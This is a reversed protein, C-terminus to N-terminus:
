SMSRGVQNLSQLTPQGRVQLAVSNSSATYEVQEIFQLTPDAVMTGAVLTPMVDKLKIWVGPRARTPELRIGNNDFVIGNSDLYWLGYSGTPRIPEDEVVLYRQPSVMGILPKSGTGVALLDEIVTKATRLGDQYENLSVDGTGRYTVGRLFQGAAGLTSQLQVSVAQTATSTQQYYQWDLTSWWGRCTITAQTASSQGSGLEWVSQPIQWVSLLNDRYATATVADMDQANFISEKIGYTSQSRIADAWSTINYQSGAQGTNREPYTIRIRNTMADLTVGFTHLGSQIDVAHVYGWWVAEGTQDRIELPYRLWAVCNWVDGSPGSAHIVAERPGGLVHHQFSGVACTLPAPIWAGQLSREQFVVHLM